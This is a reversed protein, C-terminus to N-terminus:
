NQLSKKTNNINIFKQTNNRQHIRSGKRRIRVRTSELNNNSAFMNQKKNELPLHTKSRLAKEDQM